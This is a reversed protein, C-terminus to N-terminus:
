NNFGRANEYSFYAKNCLQAVQDDVFLGLNCERERELAHKITVIEQKLKEKLSSAKEIENKFFMRADHLEKERQVAGQMCELLAEAVLRRLNSVDDCFMKQALILEEEGEEM